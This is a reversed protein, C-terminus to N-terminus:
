IFLQINLYCTHNLIQWALGMEPDIEHTGHGCEPLGKTAPKGLGPYPIRAPGINLQGGMHLRFGQFGTEGFKILAMIRIKGILIHGKGKLFQGVYVQFGVM